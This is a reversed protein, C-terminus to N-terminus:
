LAYGTSAGEYFASDQVLFDGEVAIVAGTTQWRFHWRGPQDPTIDATYDGVSSKQIESNTGFIYETETGLPDFVRIKVTTPDYDNGADDQFNVSLRIPSDIYHKGPTLM